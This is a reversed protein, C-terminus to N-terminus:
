RPGALVQQGVEILRQALQEDTLHAYEDQVPPSLERPILSAVTRLYVAPHERRVKAIVAVGHQAWDACLDALFDEALRNRSGPPRGPGPKGGSIFRGNRDRSMTPKPEM